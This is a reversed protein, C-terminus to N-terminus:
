LSPKKNAAKHWTDHLNKNYQILGYNEAYKMVAKDFKRRALMDDVTEQNFDLDPRYLITEGDPLFAQAEGLLSAYEEIIPTKNERHHLYANAFLHDRDSPDDADTSIALIEGFQDDVSESLFSPVHERDATLSDVLNALKYLQDIDLRLPKDQSEDSQHNQFAKTLEVAEYYLANRQETSDAAPQGTVEAVDLSHLYQDYKDELASLKNDVFQVYESYTTLQDAQDPTKTEFKDLSPSPLQSEINTKMSSVSLSSHNYCIISM